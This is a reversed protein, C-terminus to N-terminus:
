APQAAGGGGRGAQFWESVSADRKLPPSAALHCCKGLRGCAYVKAVRVGASVSFCFALITPEGEMEKDRPRQETENFLLKGLNRLSPRGLAATRALDGGSTPPLPSAAAKKM